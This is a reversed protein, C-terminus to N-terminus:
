SRLRFSQLATTMRYSYMGDKLAQLDEEAIVFDIDDDHQILEFLERHVALLVGGVHFWSCLSVVVGWGRGIGLIRTILM